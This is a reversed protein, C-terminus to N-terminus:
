SSLRSGDLRRGAALHVVRHRHRRERRAPWRWGYNREPNRRCKRWARWAGIPLLTIDKTGIGYKRAMLAHGLEHLLVCGFLALIFGIGTAVAPWTGERLWHSMGIWFILLLFTLHM